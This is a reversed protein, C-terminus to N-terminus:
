ELILRPMHVMYHMKPIVSETPYLEVFENHHDSILAALYSASDESIRPCFLLDVIEMLLLFNLWKEDDDPVKDGIILPLIRGLLWM